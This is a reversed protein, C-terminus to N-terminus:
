PESWTRGGDASRAVQIASEGPNELSPASVYAVGDPGFAAFPGGAKQTTGGSCISFGELVSRDWTRGGDRTSAVVVGRSNGRARRDQQWATVMNRPDRPNVVLWPEVETNLDIADGGHDADCSAFPSPGSLAVPAGGPRTAAAGPLAAATVTVAAGLAILPYATRRM